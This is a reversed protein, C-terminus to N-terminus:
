NEDCTKGDISTIIFESRRNTQHEVESCGSKNLPECGCDNVLRSEGFGKATLRSSSIGKEILYKKTAQARNNSLSENYALTGRCDTHSRIAIHMTPYKNLVVLIKQMEVEADFRVKYKNFDFHIIPIDLIKALDDCPEIEVNDIKIELNLSLKEKRNKSTIIRDEDTTYDEKEVRVLYEKECSIDKFMYKGDSGVIIQNIEKGSAEFLRVTAGTILKKTNEDLVLGEIDQLCDPIKFEYIDDDGKGGDRNSTFFGEETGLNEYYGFDDKSSNIPRGVNEVVFPVHKEFKTEFDRVMFVDLGGLGTLGNSSFYLDGRSNIYPFTEQAETNILAGINKPTGLSGDENIDVAYLDSAGITGPMDSAFYLKTGKANVTPHAVSYDASNFHIPKVDGWSEDDQLKARYMKLRNVGKGDRRLRKKTYNNRTFYMVDDTPSFSVTSEHFKTNITEDFKQVNSYSGDDQKTASHLELFPQENWKYIKGPTRSSAFILQNKYQNSGFDSAASNIDMNRIAFNESINEISTLYDRKGLFSKSRLDNSKAISFKQMWKDAEDYKNISKLAQSYRYYYEADIKETGLDTDELKMLEGYWKSADEMKNNFYFSNGLKQFLDVSKYGDAAVKGLIESTKIYSFNDYKKVAGKITGSQSFGNITIAFGVIILIHKKLKM